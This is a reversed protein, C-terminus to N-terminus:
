LLSFFCLIRVSFFHVYSCSAFSSNNRWDVDLTPAKHFDFQQRVDGTRADWVVATKDVSGSLLADGKKNWKLSFIPGKHRSLTQLLQADMLILAYIFMSFKDNLFGVGDRAFFIIVRVSVLAGLAEHMRLVYLATSFHM